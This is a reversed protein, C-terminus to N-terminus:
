ILAPWFTCHALLCTPGRQAALVLLCPPRERHEASRACGALAGPRPEAPTPRCCSVTKTGSGGCAKAAATWRYFVCNPIPEPNDELTTLDSIAATVTAQYSNMSQCLESCAAAAPMATHRPTRSPLCPSSSTARASPQCATPVVATPTAGIATRVQASSSTVPFTAPATAPM